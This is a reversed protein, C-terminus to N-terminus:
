HKELDLSLFDITLPAGAEILLANLPTALAGFTFVRDTKSLLCKGRNHSAESFRMHRCARDTLTKNWISAFFAPNRTTEATAM